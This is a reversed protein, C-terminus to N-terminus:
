QVPPSALSLLSIVLAKGNQGRAILRYGGGPTAVNWTARSDAVTTALSLNGLTAFPIAKGPRVFGTIWMVRGERETQLAVSSFSTAMLSWM